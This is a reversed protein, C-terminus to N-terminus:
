TTQKSTKRQAMVLDYYIGRQKLLELHTGVEAVKGKDLVVLRDAARLTSLRHAIAITTRGKILKHISDQIIAETEVDLSSTAEDLILIPPNKIVARAIALRQREGGSLTHGNEGILTNYGDSMNMIFDHAGAAKCATVVELETADPKAYVINDYVTGAFLFTDQFVVGISEHLYNPDMDRLDCDSIKVSGINPDYLRMILNILTTKGVGSKGVLGIMEGPKIDLSIDKLVPEYSKYGFAVESLNVGETLPVEVANEKCVIDPEEDLIEIVKVMSTMAEALWRPFAVFWRLPGYIFAIYMTFQVLVGISLNGNLIATGGFYLVLFEGIGSIFLMSPFLTAWMKENSSSVEALKRSENSFKEIEVHENGFSKVTRIGKIIDHLISNCKSNRRWQREYRLLIFNRLRSVAIIVVPLPIIVLLTLWWNTIFLIVFVIIFMLGMEIGWRLYDVIFDSIIHTDSMVRRILDGPARKALASMSLRQLNDYAEKRIDNVYAVGARNYIRSSMVFISESIVRSLLMAAAILIITLATGQMPELYEDILYRNFLPVLLFFVNAVTIFIQTLIIPKRYPRMLKLARKLVGIKNFCFLCVSLEETLPRNCKECYFKEEVDPINASGSQIYYNVIKCFEGAPKLSSLSFRCLVMENGDKYKLFILGCGVGGLVTAEEANDLTIRETESDDKLDPKIYTIYGDKHFSLGGKCPLMKEDLDYKLTYTEQM